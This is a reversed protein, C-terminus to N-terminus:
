RPSQPHLLEPIRDQVRYGYNRETLMAGAREFYKIWFLRVARYYAANNGASAGTEGAGIAVVTTHDLRPIRNRKAVDAILRDVGAEGMRALVKFDLESTEQIMDSFVLLIRPGASGVPFSNAAAFLAGILDTQNKFALRKAAADAIAVSLRPATDSMFSVLREHEREERHAFGDKSPISFSKTSLDEAFIAESKAEAESDIPLVTLRDRADLQKWVDKTLAEGYFTVTAPQISGSLDVLAVVSTSPTTGCGVAFVSTAVM